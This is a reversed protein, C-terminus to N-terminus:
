QPLQPITVLLQRGTLSRLFAVLDAKEQKTLNLPKMNPDLNENVDGGRDYHDVVEDLTKYMGNHMYPATLAIDRLTPTKFAGKLIAVKRQTYRGLDEPMGAVTKLGINHFGDDVFNHGQHCAVCDAKNEFLTFGRKASDSLASKDGKIWRDFPADTSIVTREFSAIAKGLTKENIGEGAYAREFMEVYGPISSLHTILVPMSQHMEGDAMIPGLAQEELTRARGDWMQMKNFATNVITPTARRLTKMGDGIATPLGDSWGLGPNHCSACSIWQSGSLRPDFFLTKGLEVRAPTPINDAPIPLPPMDYSPKDKAGVVPVTLLIFIGAAAISKYINDKVTYGGLFIQRRLIAAM